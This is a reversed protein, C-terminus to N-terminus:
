NTKGVETHAQGYQSQLYNLGGVPQTDTVVIDDGASEGLIFHVQGWQQTLELRGGWIEDAFGEWNGVNGIIERYRVELCKRRYM